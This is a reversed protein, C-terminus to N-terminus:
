LLTLIDFLQQESVLFAAKVCRPVLAEVEVLLHVISDVLVLPAGASDQGCHLGEEQFM